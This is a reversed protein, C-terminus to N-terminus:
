FARFDRRTEPSDWLKIASSQSLLRILNEKIEEQVDMPRVKFDEIMKLILSKGDLHSLLSPIGEIKFIGKEEEKM